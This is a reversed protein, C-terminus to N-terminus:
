PTAAPRNTLSRNARNIARTITNRENDSYNAARARAAELTAIFAGHGPAVTRIGTGKPPAEPLQGTDYGRRYSQAEVSGVEYTSAQSPRKAEADDRGAQEAARLKAIDNRAKRLREIGGAGLKKECRRCRRFRPDDDAKTWDDDTYVTGATGCVPNRSDFGRVHMTDIRM